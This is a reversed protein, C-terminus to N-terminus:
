RRSISQVYKQGEKKLKKLGPLPLSKAELPLQIRFVSGKGKESEVFVKGQHAEIFYKTLYLGLGTGIISKTTDNDARYFRTFLSSMEEESMGIGQDHVSVEVLNDIERSQIKIEGGSPSYKIANDILNNIVKSILNSDIRIPFLTDLELAFRIDRARAMPKLTAVSREIILNIDKSELQMRLQHSEIKNLELISTIFRNLEDTSSIINQVTEKDRDNMRDVSKRILMEALGQIRAVPTKLDHTVLSMFNSKLEEVQKLLQNQRQFEWRKRFESVLRYPVALYYALFIGILLESTHLWMNGAAYLIQSVALTGILLTGTILIGSLPASRLIWALVFATLILTLLISLGRPLRVITQHNLVSDLINAHVVLKPIRKEEHDYPAFTFDDSDDPNMSGVLIIKGELASKPVHGQLVDIWRLIPYSERGHYKFFFYAADVDALHFMGPVEIEAAESNQIQKAFEIHFSNKGNLHHLARRTTQDEAFVNGDKHVLSLAYPLSSLPYPPVIEGTVDFSSGGLFTTGSAMMKQASRTFRTAAEAEAATPDVEAIRSLNVLYGVAQPHFKELNELLKAHPELPFPSTQELTRLSIEDMGILVIRPDAKPQPGTKVRFDYLVSEIRSFQFSSLVGTLVTSTCLVLILASHRRSLRLKPLKM